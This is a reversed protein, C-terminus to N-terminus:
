KAPPYVRSNFGHPRQAARLTPLVSPLPLPGAPWGAGLPGIAQPQAERGTTGTPGAAPLHSKLRHGQACQSESHHGRALDQRPGQWFAGLGSGRAGRGPCLLGTLAAVQPSPSQHARAHASGEAPELGTLTM